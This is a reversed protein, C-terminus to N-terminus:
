AYEGSCPFLNSGSLHRLLRTPAIYEDGFKDVPTFRIVRILASYVLEKYVCDNDNDLGTFIYGHNLEAIFRSIHCLSYDDVIHSLRDVLCERVVDPESAMLDLFFRRYISTPRITPRQSKCARIILTDLKDM